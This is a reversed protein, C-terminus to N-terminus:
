HIYKKDGIHAQQTLKDVLADVIEKRRQLAIGAEVKMKANKLRSIPKESQKRELKLIFIHDNAIIPGAIEQPKLKLAETELV